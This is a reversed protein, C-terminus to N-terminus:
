FGSAKSYDFDDAEEDDGRYTWGVAHLRVAWSGDGQRTIIGSEELAKVLGGFKSRTVGSWRILDAQRSACYDVERQGYAERDDGFDNNTTKVRMALYLSRAAPTLRSWEASMILDKRIFIIDNRRAPKEVLYRYYSAPRRGVEERDLLGHSLLKEVSSKVTNVALGTHKAIHRQGPFAFGESNAHVAIHLFVSRASHGVQRLPSAEDTLLEKRLKYFNNEFKTPPPDAPDSVTMPKYEPQPNADPCPVLSWGGVHHRGHSM